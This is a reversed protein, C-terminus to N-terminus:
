LDNCEATVVIDNYSIHHGRPSSAHFYRKVKNIPLHHKELPYVLQMKLTPPTYKMMAQFTIEVSLWPMGWNDRLKDLENDAHFDAPGVMDYDKIKFVVNSITRELDNADEYYFFNKYKASSTYLDDHDVLWTGQIGGDIFTNEDFLTELAELNQFYKDDRPKIFERLEEELIVESISDRHLCQQGKMKKDTIAEAEFEIIELDGDM